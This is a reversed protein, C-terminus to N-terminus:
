SLYESLSYSITMTLKRTQSLAKEKLQANAVQVLVHHVDVVLAKIYRWMQAYIHM